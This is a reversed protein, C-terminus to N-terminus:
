VYRFNVKSHNQCFSLLFSNVLGNKKLGHNNLDNVSLFSLLHKSIIMSIYKHLSPLFMVCDRFNLNSWIKYYYTEDDLNNRNFTLYKGSYDLIRWWRWIKCNKKRNLTTSEREDNTLNQVFVYQHNQSSEISQENVIMRNRNRDFLVM